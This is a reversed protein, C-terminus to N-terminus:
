QKDGQLIGSDGTDDTVTGEIKSKDFTAVYRPNRGEASLLWDVREEVSTWTGSYTATDDSYEVTGNNLFKVDIWHTGANDWIVRCRWETDEISALKPDGFCGSLSTLLVLLSLSLVPVLLKKKM